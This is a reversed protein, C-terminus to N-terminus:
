VRIFLAPNDGPSPAASDEGTASETGPNLTDRWAQAVQSLNGLVNVVQTAGLQEAPVDLLLQLRDEPPLLAIRAGGTQQWLLNYYLVERLWRERDQDPLPGIELMFLLRRTTEQWEALVTEKDSLGLLWATRDEQVRIVEDLEALEAVEILLEDLNQSESM